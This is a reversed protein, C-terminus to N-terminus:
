RLGFYKKPLNPSIQAGARIRALLAPSVSPRRHILGRAELTELQKATASKAASFHICSDHKIFLHDGPRLVCTEEMGETFSTANVFLAVGGRDAPENIIIWLHHQGHVQGGGLFADGPGFSSM